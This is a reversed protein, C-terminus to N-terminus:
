KVTQVLKELVIPSRTPKPIENVIDILRFHNQNLENRTKTKSYRNDHNLRRPHVYKFFINIVGPSTKSLVVNSNKVFPKSRKVSPSKVKKKALVFLNIAIPLLVIAYVVVALGQGNHTMSFNM